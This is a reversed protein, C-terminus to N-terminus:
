QGAKPKELLTVKGEIELLLADVMDPHVGLGCLIQKVGVRYTALTARAEDREQEAQAVRAQAEDVTVDRMARQWRELVGLVAENSVEAM